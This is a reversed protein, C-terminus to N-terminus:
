VLESAMKDNKKLLFFHRAVVPGRRANQLQGKGRRRCVVVVEPGTPPVPM